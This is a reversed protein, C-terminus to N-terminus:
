MLNCSAAHKVPVAFKLTVSTTRDSSEFLRVIVDDSDEAKKVTDIIVNPKDTSVFSFESPLEGKGQSVASVFPNNLLYAHKFVESNRVDRAYSLANEDGFANYYGIFGRLLWSHGSLQQENAIGDEIKGLYGKKNAHLPFNKIMADMCPIKKGTIEYMCVFALLARGEWDGAWDYHEDKWVNKINYKESSLRNFSREIHENLGEVM